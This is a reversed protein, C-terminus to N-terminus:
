SGINDDGGGGNNWGDPTYELEVTTYPLKDGGITDSDDGGDEWSSVNYTVAIMESMVNVYFNYRKGREMKLAIPISAKNLAGGGMDLVISMTLPKVQSPGGANVGRYDSPFVPQEVVYQIPEGAKGPGPTSGDTTVSEGMDVYNPISTGIEELSFVTRWNSGYNYNPYVIGTRANYWGNSGANYLLLSSISFTQTKPTTQETDSDAYYESYFWVKVESKVPYLETKAPLQHVERNTTVTIEFPDDTLPDGDADDPSSAYVDDGLGYVALFGLNATSTNRMPIAPHIMAVRYVGQNTSPNLGTTPVSSLMQAQQNAKVLANSSSWGSVWNTPWYMSPITYPNNNNGPFNMAVPVLTGAPRGSLQGDDYAYYGRQQESRIQYKSIDTSTTGGVNYSIITYPDGHTPSGDVDTRTGLNFEQEYAPTEAPQEPELVARECSALALVAITIFLLQKM